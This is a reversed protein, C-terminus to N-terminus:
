GLVCLLHQEFNARTRVLDFNLPRDFRKKFYLDDLHPESAVEALDPANAPIHAAPRIPLLSVYSQACAILDIKKTACLDRPYLM